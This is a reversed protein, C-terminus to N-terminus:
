VYWKPEKLDTLQRKADAIKKRMQSSSSRCGCDEARWRRDTDAAEQKGDEIIRELQRSRKKSMRALEKRDAIQQRGDPWRSAGSLQNADNLQQEGSSLKARSANLEAWGLDLKRRATSLQSKADTLEKKGADVQKQAEQLEQEKESLQQRAAALQEQGQQLQQQGAALEALGADLQTKAAALEAEKESLQSDTEALQAAAADLQTKGARCSSMAQMWSTKVIGDLATQQADRETKTADLKQLQEVLAQVTQRFKQRGKCIEDPLKKKRMCVWFGEM